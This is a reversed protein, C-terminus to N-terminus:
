RVDPWRRTDTVQRLEVIRGDALTFIHVFAAAFPEGTAPATGRYRGAVVVRGDTTHLCEEPHPLAKFALHVPVWCDRLMRDPGAHTGGFGGPLGDSVRGVFDEGLTERLAVADGNHMATYFRDIVRTRGTPNPQNM